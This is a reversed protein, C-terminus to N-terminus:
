KKKEVKQEKQLGELFKKYGVIGSSTPFKAILQQYMAVAKALDKSYYYYNGLTMYAPELDPNLQMARTLYPEIETYKKAAEAIKTKPNKAKKDAKIPAVEAELMDFNATGIVFSSLYTYQDTPNEKTLELYKKLHKIAKPYAKMQNANVGSLYLSLSYIQLHEPLLGDMALIKDTYSEADKYKKLNFFNQSALYFVNVYLKKNSTELGEVALVKLFFENSKAPQRMQSYNFGLQYTALTLQDRNVTELGPIELVKAYYQNSKEMDRKQAMHRGLGMLTKTLMQVAPTLNADINVAKELNAIVDDFKKQTNFIKAMSFYVPAYQDSLELVKNYYEFAKTFDNKAANKDGKKMLKGIKKLTKQDPADANAIGVAAFLFFVVILIVTLKKTM